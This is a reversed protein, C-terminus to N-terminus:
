LWPPDVMQDYLCHNLKIVLDPYLGSYYYSVLGQHRDGGGNGMIGKIILQRFEEFVTQNPKHIVLGGQIQIRQPPLGALNMNYDRVFLAQIPHHVLQTGNPQPFITRHDKASGVLSYRVSSGVPKLIAHYRSAYFHCHPPEDLYM